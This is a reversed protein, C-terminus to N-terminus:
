NSSHPLYYYYIIILSFRNATFPDTISNYHYNYVVFFNSERQLIPHDITEFNRKLITSNVSLKMTEPFQFYM